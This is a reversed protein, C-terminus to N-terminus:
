DTGSPIVNRGVPVDFRRSSNPVVEIKHNQGNLSGVVIRDTEGRELTGRIALHEGVDFVAEHRMLFSAVAVGCDLKYTVPFFLSESNDVVRAAIEATGAVRYPHPMAIEEYERVARLSFRTGQYLGKNIKRRCLEEADADRPVTQRTFNEVTFREFQPRRFLDRIRELVLAANDRGYVVLDIDSGHRGRGWLLSDTVGFRDLPIEFFESCARALDVATQGLRNRATQLCIRRLGEQPRHIEKVLDRPVSILGDVYSPYEAQLFAVASRYDATWKNGRVYKLSATARKPAHDYGIVNFVLDDHTILYDKDRLMASM